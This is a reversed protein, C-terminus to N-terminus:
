VELGWMYVLAVVFVSVPVVSGWTCVLVAVVVSVSKCVLVAVAMSGSKCELVAAVGSVSGSKCALDLVLALEGGGSVSVAVSVWEKYVLVLAWVLKCELVVAVM